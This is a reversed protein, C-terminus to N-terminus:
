YPTCCFKTQRVQDFLLASCQRAITTEESTPIVHIDVESDNASVCEKLGDNASHDIIVGAMAIPRSSASM